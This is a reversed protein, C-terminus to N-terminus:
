LIGGKIYFPPISNLHGKFLLPKFLMPGSICPNKEISICNPRWIGPNRMWLHPPGVTHVTRLWKIYLIQADTSKPIWLLTGPRTRWPCRLVVWNEPLWFDYVFRWSYLSDTGRVGPTTWLDVANTNTIGLSLLPFFGVDVFLELM